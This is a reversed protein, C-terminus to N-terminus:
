GNTKQKEVDDLREIVAQSFLSLDTELRVDAVDDYRTPGRNVIMLTAGAQHAVLAMAAAPNVELSSGMAIFVEARNALDQAAALAEMPIMDGFFVIGPRILGGCPCRPVGERRIGEDVFARDFVKECAVCTYRLVDGHFEIVRRSGAKQHLGDINQTIVAEILGAAELGALMRHTVNPERDALTHVHKIALRYYAAPDGFFFDRDFTHPSLVSYLGKPGRFDPIGSATSVGAGTLVVNTGGAKLRDLFVEVMEQVQAEHDV